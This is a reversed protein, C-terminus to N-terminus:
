TSACRRTCKPVGAPSFGPPIGMAGPYTAIGDIDAPTLGADAIAALCADITLEYGSRYLRRGVDSQGVGSIVSRGESALGITEPRWASGAGAASVTESGTPGPRGPRSSCRSGCM